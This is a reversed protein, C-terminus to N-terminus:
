LTGLRCVDIQTRLRRAEGTCRMIKFSLGRCFACIGSWSSVSARLSEERLESANSQLQSLQGHIEENGKGFLGAEAYRYYIWEVECMMAGLKDTVKPLAWRRLLYLLLAFIFVCVLLVRSATNPLLNNLSALISTENSVTSVEAMTILLLVGQSKYSFSKSPRDGAM